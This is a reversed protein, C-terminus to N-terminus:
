DELCESCLHKHGDIEEKCYINMQPTFLANCEACTFIELGCNPCSLITRIEPKM